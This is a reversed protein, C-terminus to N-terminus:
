SNGKRRYPFPEKAELPRMARSELVLGDEIPFGRLFADTPLPNGGPRQLRLPRLAGEGCSITLNGNVDTQVTGPAARGPAQPEAAAELIHLEMGGIPFRTGPWPQFARIRNVLEEAHGHFDLHCDSKEIIRCYTVKTEDQETFSLPSQALAELNRGVLAPCAEGLRAHLAPATEGPLIRVHEVDAVPGADLKPIIKMLSVGTEELGVAIATHIPSPGRLRPLLSPHLNLVGRPPVALFSRTLIQGFAMVLVMEIGASALYAEEEPGCKRPQRVEIGQGLAWEKIANAQRRMGRGTRRDPQTYVVELEWGGPRERQLYVLLPLAIPDSGMFAFKM